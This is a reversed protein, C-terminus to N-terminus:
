NEKALVQLVDHYDKLKDNIKTTLADNTSKLEVIVKKLDEIEQELKKTILGKDVAVWENGDYILLDNIAPKKKLEIIM